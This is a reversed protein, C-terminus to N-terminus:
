EKLKRVHAFIALVYVGFVILAAAKWTIDLAAILLYCGAGLALAPFIAKFIDTERVGISQRLSIHTFIRVAAYSILMATASGVIGYLLTLTIMSPMAVLAFTGSSILFLRRVKGIGQMVEPAPGSIAYVVGSLALIKAPLAADAWQPGLLSEILEDSFTLILLSFPFVVLTMAKTVSLYHPKISKIDTQLRSYAPLMVKSIIQTIQTRFSETLMYAIAYIGLIHAGLLAGIVFNDLNTRGYYIIKSGLMWGSFGVVDRLSAWSYRWRPSWSAARWLMATKLGVTSLQQAALAWVGAGAFALGIAVISAVVTAVVEAIVQSKFRMRRTLRVTPLISLSHLLISASMVLALDRLQPEDYAWIMLPIGAIIFLATWGIGGGLLFWFASDYRILSNADRKRQILANQLGFDVFIKVLGLVVVIMAILGFHEPVLLRALLLRVLISMGKNVVLNAANWSVGRHIQRALTSRARDSTTDAMSQWGHWIPVM